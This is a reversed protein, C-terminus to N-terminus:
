DMDWMWIRNTDQHGHGTPSRKDDSFLMVVTSQKRDGFYDRIDPIYIALVFWDDSDPQHAKDGAAEYYGVVFDWNEPNSDERTALFAKRNLSELLEEATQPQPPRSKLM